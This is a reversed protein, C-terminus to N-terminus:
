WAVASRIAQCVELKWRSIITSRSLPKPAKTIGKAARNAVATQALQPVQGVLADVYDLVINVAATIRQVTVADSIHAAALDNALTQQLATVAAQLTALTGTGTKNKLYANYAEEVAQLGTVADESIKIASGAAPDTVIVIQAIAEATAIITPWSNCAVSFTLMTCIVGIALVKNALTNM